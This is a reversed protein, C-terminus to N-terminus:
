LKALLCRVEKAFKDYICREHNDCRNAVDLTNSRPMLHYRQNSQRVCAKHAAPIADPVADGQPQGVVENPLTPLTAEIPLMPDKHLM